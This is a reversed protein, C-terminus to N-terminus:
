GKSVGAGNLPPAILSCSILLGNEVLKDLSGVTLFVAAAPSLQCSTGDEDEDEDM